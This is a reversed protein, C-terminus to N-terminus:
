IEEGHSGFILQQAGQVLNAFSSFNGSMARTITESGPQIVGRSAMCMHRASVIVLVGDNAINERIADLIQQCLREQLQLRKSYKDVIRVLKSIGVVTGDRPIYAVSIKGFFPLLHHECFSSFQINKLIVFDGYNEVSFKHSLLDGDSIEQATSFDRWIKAVRAPTEVLGERSVDEDLGRLLMEVASVVEEFKM